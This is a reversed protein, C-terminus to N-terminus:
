LEIRTTFLIERPPFVVISENNKGYIQNIPSWRPEGHLANRVNVQFTVRRDLLRARYAAFADLETNSRGRKERGASDKGVVPADVFRVGGGFRLGKLRGAEVAYNTFVSFKHRRLGIVRTSEAVRTALNGEFNDIGDRITSAAGTLVTDAISGGNPDKPNRRNLTAWFPRAVAAAWAQIRPAVNKVERDTWSYNFRVDWNRALQGTVALEYGRTVSDATFGNGRVRYPLTESEAMLGENVLAELIRTQNDTVWNQVAGSETDNLQGAEFYTALLAVKNQLLSLKVGYDRGQGEIPTNFRGDPVYFIPLVPVGISDSQNCFVSLNPRLHCVVGALQTRGEFRTIGFSSPDRVVGGANDNMERYAAFDVGDWRLGLTTVLRGDGWFNQMAFMGSRNDRTYDYRRQFTFFDTTIKSGNSLTANVPPPQRVASGNVYDRPNAPQTIYHRRLFRNRTDGPLDPRPVVGDILVQERMNRELITYESTEYLGALRHRGLLRALRGSGRQRFDLEYSLAARFATTEESQLLRDLASDFHALGAFPNPVPSNRNPLNSTPSDTPLWANADGELQSAFSRTVVWDGQGRNFALEFNLERVIEQQWIASANKLKLRRGNGPGLVNVELVGEPALVVSRGGNFFTLSTGDPLPENAWNARTMGRFNLISGDIDNFVWYGDRNNNNTTFLQALNALADASLGPNLAQNTRDAFSGYVLPSGLAQWKAARNFFTLPRSTEDDVRADEFELAISTKRFPKITATVYWADKNEHTWQRWGEKEHHVANIRLGLVDKILVKNLDVASRNQLETGVAIEAAYRDKVVNARKTSSNIIGGPSGFGFLIANPGRAEDLREINYSDFEFRYDFYNRARSATLGRIRFNFAPSPGVQINGLGHRTDETDQILNNAYAAVEQLNAAGLDEMFEKTFVDIVSSVDKLETNLRSGALTSAARYRTDKAADVLFPSLTIAEKDGPTAAPALAQAPLVTPFLQAAFIAAAARWACHGRFCLSRTSIM